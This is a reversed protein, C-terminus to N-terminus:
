TRWCRTTPTSKMPTQAALIAQDQRDPPGYLAAATRDLDGAAAPATAAVVGAAGADSRRACYKLTALSLLLDRSDGCEDLHPIPVSALHMTEARKGIAV